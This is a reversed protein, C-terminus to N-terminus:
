MKTRIILSICDNDLTEVYHLWMSPVFVYEGENVIVEHYECGFQTFDVVGDHRSRRKLPHDIPYMDFLGHHEPAILVVRKRGSSQYIVGPYPDYHINTISGAQSLYTCVHILNEYIDHPILDKYTHQRKIDGFTRYYCIEGDEIEFNDEGDMQKHPLQFSYGDGHGYLVGDDCTVEIGGYSGFIGTKSTLLRLKLNNHNAFKFYEERTKPTEGFKGQINLTPPIANLM